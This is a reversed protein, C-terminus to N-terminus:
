VYSLRPKCSVIPQRAFSAPIATGTGDKLNKLSLFGAGVTRLEYSGAQLGPGNLNFDFPITAKGVLPGAVFLGISFTM